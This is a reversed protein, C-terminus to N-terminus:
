LSIPVGSTVPEGTRAVALTNRVHLTVDLNTSAPPSYTSLIVPQYSKRNLAAPNVTATRTRTRTATGYSTATRTPTRTRTATPTPTRTRTGTAFSTPSRTATPGAPAGKWRNYFVNLLTVFEGTAKQNGAATPHSDGSGYAAYNSGVTQIHQIAGGWWRHHNGTGWGLDNANTNGGNSTLVNYFDFVAVNNHPYSDLWDNVLWNNFARANAAYAPDTDSAMLPPAAIVIFLRDQRTAFYALIDNYIGKANGVTHFESGSDQGRLPNSGTTPPDTPGGGLHSNPFCSKFMIIENQGGPDTGLRSYGANQGSEAYLASLYQDRHPGAFWNYWHGVDTHDGITDFGVDADAPGWGYNTDSVFYNNDRLAIGLNGNGDELWAEGTSHHIFILKVPHSPPDPNLSQPSGQPAGGNDPLPAADQRIDATPPLASTGIGTGPSALVAWLVVGLITVLMVCVHLTKSARM